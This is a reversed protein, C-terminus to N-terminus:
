MNMEHQSIIGKISITEWGLYKRLVNSSEILAKLSGYSPCEKFKDYRGSKLEKYFDNFEVELDIEIRDIIHDM